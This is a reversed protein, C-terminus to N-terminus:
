KKETKKANRMIATGYCYAGNYGTNEECWKAENRIKIDTKEDWTYREPALRWEPMDGCGIFVFLGVILVKM